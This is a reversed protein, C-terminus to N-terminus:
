RAIWRCTRAEWLGYWFCGFWPRPAAEAVRGVWDELRATEVTTSFNSGVVLRDRFEFDAEVFNAGRLLLTMLGFVCGDFVAFAERYADELSTEFLKLFLFKVTM